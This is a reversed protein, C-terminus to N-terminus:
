PTQGKWETWELAIRVIKWMWFKRIWIEVSGLSQRLFDDVQNQRKFIRDLKQKNTYEQFSKKNLLVRKRHLIQTTNINNRFALSEFPLM